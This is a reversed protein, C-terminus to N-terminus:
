RGWLTWLPLGTLRGEGERRATCIGIKSSEVGLTLFGFYVTARCKEGAPSLPRHPPDTHATDHQAHSPPSPLHPQDVPPARGALRLEAPGQLPAAHCDPRRHGCDQGAACVFRMILRPYLAGLWCQITSRGM